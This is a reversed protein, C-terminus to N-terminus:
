DTDDNLRKRQMIDTAKKLNIRFARHRATIFIRVAAIFTFAIVLLSVMSKIVEGKDILSSLVVFAFGIFAVLAFIIFGFFWTQLLRMENKTCYEIMQSKQSYPIDKLESRYEEEMTGTKFLWM